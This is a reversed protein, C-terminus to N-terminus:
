CGYGMEGPLPQGVPTTPGGANVTRGSNRACGAHVMPEDRIVQHGISVLLSNPTVTYAVGDKDAVFGDKGSESAPLILKSGDRM